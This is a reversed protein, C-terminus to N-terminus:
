LLDAQARGRRRRPQRAWPFHFVRRAERRSAMADNTRRSGAEMKGLKEVVEPFLDNATRWHANSDSALTRLAADIRKNGAEAQAVNRSHLTLSAFTFQNM